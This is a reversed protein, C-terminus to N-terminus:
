FQWLQLLQLCIYKVINNESNGYNCCNSNVHVKRTEFNGYNCCNCGGPNKKKKKESNGYNCCNPDSSTM